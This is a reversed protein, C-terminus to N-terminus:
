REREERQRLMFEEVMDGAAGLGASVGERFKKLAPDSERAADAFSKREAERIAGILARLSHRGAPRM